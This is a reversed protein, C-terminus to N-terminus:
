SHCFCPTHSRMQDATRLVKSPFPFSSQLRAKRSPLKTGAFFPPHGDATPPLTLPTCRVDQGVAHAGGQGDLECPSLDMFQPHGQLHYVLDAYTTATATGPLPGLNQSCILAVVAPPEAPLKASPANTGGDGEPSPRPPSSPWAPRRLQVGGASVTPDHLAGM